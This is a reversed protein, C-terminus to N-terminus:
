YKSSRTLGSATKRNELISIPVFSRLNLCLYGSVYNQPAVSIENFYDPRVRTIEFEKKGIKVCRVRSERCQRALVEKFSDRSTECEIALISSCM